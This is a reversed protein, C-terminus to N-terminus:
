ASPLSLSVWKNVGNLTNNSPAIGGVEIYFCGFGPNLVNGQATTATGTPAGGVGENANNVTTNISAVTPNILQVKRLVRRATNGSAGAYDGPVTVQTGMDRVMVLGATLTGPFGLQTATLGSASLLSAGTSDYVDNASSTAGVAVTAINIFYQDGRRNGARSRLASM